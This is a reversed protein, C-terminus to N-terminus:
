IEIEDDLDIEKVSKDVSDVAKSVHEFETYDNVMVENEASIDLLVEDKVNVDVVTGKVKTGKRKAEQQRLLQEQREAALEKRTKNFVEEYGDKTVVKIVRVLSNREEKVLEEIAEQTSFTDLGMFSVLLDRTSEKDMVTFRSFNSNLGEKGLTKAVYGMDVTADRTYFAYVDFTAFKNQTYRELNGFVRSVLTQFNKDSIGEIRKYIEEVRKDEGINEMYDFHRVKVGEESARQLMNGIAEYHLHEAEPGKGEKVDKDFRVFVVRMKSQTHHIYPYKEEVELISYLDSASLEFDRDVIEMYGNRRVSGKLAIFNVILVYLWWFLGVFILKLLIFMNSLFIMLTILLIVLFSIAGVLISTTTNSKSESNRNFTVPMSVFRNKATPRFKGVANSIQREVNKSM